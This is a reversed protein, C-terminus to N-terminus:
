TGGAAGNLDLDFVVPQDRGLSSGRQGGALSPGADLQLRCPLDDVGRVPQFFGEDPLFAAGPPLEAFGRPVLGQIEDGPPEPMELLLWPAWDTQQSLPM